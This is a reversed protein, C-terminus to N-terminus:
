ANTTRKTAKSNFFKRTEVAQKEKAMVVFAIKDYICMNYGHLASFAGETKIPMISLHAHRRHNEVYMLFSYFVAFLYIRYYALCVPYSM